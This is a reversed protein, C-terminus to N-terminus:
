LNDGFVTIRVEAVRTQFSAQQKWRALTRRNIRCAAATELDSKTGDAILLAARQKKGSALETSTSFAIPQYKPKQWQGMAKAVAKLLRSQERLLPRDLQYAYVAIGGRGSVKRRRLIGTSGGPVDKMEPNHARKWVIDELEYL